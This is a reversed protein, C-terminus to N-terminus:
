LVNVNTRQMPNFWNVQEKVIRHRLVYSGPASPAQVSITLTVQKGPLVDHPLGFRQPEDNWAGVADSAGAFYVGLHVAYSGTANWTKTGKNVLTISYTRVEDAQWQTPPSVM